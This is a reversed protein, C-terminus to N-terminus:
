LTDVPVREMPKDHELKMYVSGMGRFADRQANRPDLIAREFRDALEQGSEGDPGYQEIQAREAHSIFMLVCGRYEVRGDSDGRTRKGRLRESGEVRPDVYEYGLEEYYDPGHLHDAMSVLVYHRDPKANVISAELADAPRLRPDRRQPGQERKQFRGM